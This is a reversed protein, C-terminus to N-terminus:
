SQDKESETQQPEAEKLQQETALPLSFSFTSGKDVESVVGIQGGHTEVIVKSIYLGLGTGKAGQKLSGSV